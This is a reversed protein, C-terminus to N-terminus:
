GKLSALLERAPALQADSELARELMQIAKPKDGQRRSIEGLYYFVEAKAIPSSADLKQLLLARFTRQAKELDEVELALTGLDKLISVSGPDIKFASDLEALAKTRDGSALYARSLKQHIPALEKARKGGFSAVLKQLVGAADSSRGAAQYADCLAVLLERDDPTAKSAQELLEAAAQHMRAVFDTLVEQHGGRLFRMAADADAPVLRDVVLALLREDWVSM